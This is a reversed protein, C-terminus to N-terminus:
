WTVPVERVTCFIANENFALAELPKTLAMGPM